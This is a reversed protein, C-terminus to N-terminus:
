SESYIKVSSGVSSSTITTPKNVAQQPSHHVAADSVAPTATIDSTCNLALLVNYIVNICKPNSDTTRLVLFAINIIDLTLLIPRIHFITQVKKQRHM